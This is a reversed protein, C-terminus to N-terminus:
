IEEALWGLKLEKLKENSPRSTVPDWKMEEYYEAVMKDWDLTIDKTKGKKLPPIGLIRGPIKYNKQNIKERLNFAQRINMIREGTTNFEEIDIDWGTLAELYKPHNVLDTSGYAFTCTGIASISHQLNSQIKISKARGLFKNKNEGAIMSFDINKFVKELDKHGLNQAAQTHRGPTPDFAYIIALSPDWRSDHYPLEQGGIHMAYEESGRGIKEAAIKVGDALIQGIGEREAIKKILEVIARHNGWNLELGDTDSKTLINNEYCEIAFAAIAGASITDIGYRNCIDNCKIISEYNTNLCLAGFAASTEYEPTHSFEEIKYKGKDVMSRDWCAIPCGYCTEKKVIYKKINEYQLQDYNGLDSSTGSWNKIPSDQEEIGVGTYAPTGGDKAWEADGFDNKIDNLFKNRIDKFMEPDSVPVKKNGKVIVAKLNKSGMVAGMGSRGAAKGKRNLICAILTKKEGAKGICAAEANKGYKERVYDDVQYTDKGWIEKADVLKPIGDDLLLYVPKPSIGRFFVGDFGAKKMVPGFSGGCNSDGWTNTLPSKACVTYRPTGPMTTGNLPGTVFGLINEPGLPEVNPKQNKYIHLCGIGYGGYYERKIDDDFDLEDIKNNSLDVSLYRNMYGGNAM